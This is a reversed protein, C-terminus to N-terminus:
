MSQKYKCLQIILKNKPTKVVYLKFKNNNKFGNFNVILQEKIGTKYVKEITKYIKSISHHNFVKKLNDELLILSYM